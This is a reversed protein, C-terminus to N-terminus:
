LSLGGETKETVTAKIHGDTFYLNFSDGVAIDGISRIVSGCKEARCISKKLLRAPNNFDLMTIQKQLEMTDLNIKNEFKQTLM